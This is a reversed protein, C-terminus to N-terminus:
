LLKPKEQELENMEQWEHEGAIRRYTLYQSSLRCYCIGVFYDTANVVLIGKAIFIPMGDAAVAQLEHL